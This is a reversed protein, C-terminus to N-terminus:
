QIKRGCEPCFINNIVEFTKRKKKTIFEVRQKVCTICNKVYAYCIKKNIDGDCTVKYSVCSDCTRNM